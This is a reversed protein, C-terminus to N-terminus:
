LQFIELHSPIIKPFQESKPWGSFRVNLSPSIPNSFMNNLTAYEKILQICDSMDKAALWIEDKSRSFRPCFSLKKKSFVQSRIRTTTCYQKLHFLIKLPLFFPLNWFCDLSVKQTPTGLLPPVFSRILKEIKSDKKEHMAIRTRIKNPVWVEFPKKPNNRFDAM